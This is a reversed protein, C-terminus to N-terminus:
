TYNRIIVENIKGRGKSDANINRSAGVERIDVGAIGQYLDYIIGATSNSSMVKVGKESLSIFLDRLRVQEALGFGEHTYNVFDSTASLPAYPPDFYVFDGPQADQVADEFDGNLIKVSATNLYASIAKLLGPNVIKPNKYKGYPVNFQNNSNVRYLGNFNVRLMYLLRAARETASMHLILGNRDAERVELYHAKEYKANEAEHYQLLSILNDVDDRIQKYAHILEENFDNIVADQPALEFFLAGGGVFPEYYRNFKEPVLELLSPLLQRKGGTWKTFPKLRYELEPM